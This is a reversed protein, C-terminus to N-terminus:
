DLLSLKWYTLELKNDDPDNFYLSLCIGRDIIEYEIDMRSMKNKAENFNVHDVNFALHM